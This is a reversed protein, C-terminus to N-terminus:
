FDLVLRTRFLRILPNFFSNEQFYAFGDRKLHNDFFALLKPTNDWSIEHLIFRGCIIEFKEHLDVNLLDAEIFRLDDSQGYNSRALNILRPSFDVGVVSAGCDSLFKSLGGGGCGIDLVRKRAIGKAFSEAFAVGTWPLPEGMSILTNQNWYEKTDM